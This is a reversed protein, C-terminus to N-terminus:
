VGKLNWGVLLGLALFTAFWFALAVLALWPFPDDGDPVKPSYPQCDWSEWVIAVPYDPKLHQPCRFGLYPGQWCLGKEELCQSYRM